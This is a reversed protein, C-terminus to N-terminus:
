LSTELPLHPAPSGASEGWHPLRPRPAQWTDHNHHHLHQERTNRPRDTSSVVSHTRVSVVLRTNKLFFFFTLVLHVVFLIVTVCSPSWSSFLAWTRNSVRLTIMARLQRQHGRLKTSSCISKWWQWFLQHKVTQRQCLCQLWVRMQLLFSSTPTSNKQEPASDNLIQNCQSELQDCIQWVNGRDRPGPGLMSFPFVLVAVFKHGHSLGQDEKLTAWLESLSSAMLFVSELKGKEGEEHWVNLYWPALFIDWFSCFAPVNEMLIAPTMNRMVLFLSKMVEM